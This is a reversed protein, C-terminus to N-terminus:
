DALDGNAILAERLEIREPANMALVSVTARGVATLGVIYAGRRVFHEAWTQERPHFLAVMEDSETDIGALNPGKHANCRFCALCLNHVEDTGGHQKARIHDIVHPVLLFHAQQLGCYECRHNARDRVFQRQAADM